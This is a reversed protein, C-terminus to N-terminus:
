RRAPPAGPAPAPEPVRGAIDGELKRLANALSATGPKGAYRFPTGSHKAAAVLRNAIGHSLLSEFVLLAGVKGIRIRREVPDALRDGGRYCNPWETSGVCRTVWQLRDNAPIGGVLVLPGREACRARLRPLALPAPEEESEASEDPAAIEEVAHDSGVPHPAPEATTVPPVKIGLIADVVADRAAVVAPDPPRVLALPAAAAVAFPLPAPPAPTLRGVEPLEQILELLALAADDAGAVGAPRAPAPLGNRAMFAIVADSEVACAYADAAQQIRCARERARRAPAEILARVMGAVSDITPRGAPAPECQPIPGCRDTADSNQCFDIESM